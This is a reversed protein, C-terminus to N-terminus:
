RKDARIRYGGTISRGEKRHGTQFGFRSNIAKKFLQVSFKESLNEEELFRFVAKDSIDSYEFFTEGVECWEEIFKLWPDNRSKFIKEYEQSKASGRVMETLRMLVGLRKLLLMFIGDREGELKDWIKLDRNEPAVPTGFHICRIRRYEASSGNKFMPLSNALFYLKSYSRREEPSGYIERGVFVEGSVIRKWNTSDMERTDLESGINGLSDWLSTLSYGRHDCIEGITLSTRSDGLVGAFAEYLTTKGTGGEGIAVVCVEFRKVPIFANACTLLFLEQDEELPLQNRVIKMFVPCVEDWEPGEPTGVGEIYKSPLVKGFKWRSSHEILEMGEEGVRVVGNGCNILIEGNEDDVRSATFLPTESEIMWGLHTRLPVVVRVTPNELCDCIMRAIYGDTKREFAGSETNYVGWRKNYYHLPPLRRLLERVQGVETRNLVKGDGNTATGDEAVRMPRFGTPPPPQEPEEAEWRSHDTKAM